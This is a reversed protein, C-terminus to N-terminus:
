GDLGPEDLLSRGQRDEVEIIWLDPDRGRERALLEDIDREAGQAIRVWERKDSLLDFQRQYLSATGDLPSQKVMVAGADADGRRVVFAPIDRLRLRALYAHVWFDATLRAM